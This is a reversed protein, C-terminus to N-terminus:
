SRRSRGAPWRSCCCRPSPPSRWVHRDRGAPGRWWWRPMVPILRHDTSTFVGAPGGGVALTRYMGLRYSWALVLLLVAGLMVFHRRVYASVFLTGHEWRLSPTLAYLLVVLGAVSTLVIVAWLHMSTEFPLWYVFFGLDVGFYPDAEAFPKGVFALLAEHWGDLPATLLAGVMVSLLVVAGLLFHGPVQEGIEINALRRPLVLSVVSRRVAFLNIFAFLAAAAFSATGLAVTTSVRARWVDLAGLSAYWQYETYLGATWRGVLLVLATVALAGGLVRRGTV